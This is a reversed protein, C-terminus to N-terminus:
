DTRLRYVRVYAIDFADQWRGALLGDRVDMLAFGEPLALRGLPTLDDADFVFWEEGTENEVQAKITVGYANGRLKYVTLLIIEEARSILIM